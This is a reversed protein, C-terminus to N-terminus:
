PVAPMRKRRGCQKQCDCIDLSTGTGDGQKGTFFSIDCSAGLLLLESRMGATHGIGHQTDYLSESEGPAVRKGLHPFHSESLHCLAFATACAQM